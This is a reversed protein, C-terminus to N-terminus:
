LKDTINVMHKHGARKYKPDMTFLGNMWHQNNGVTTIPATSTWGVFSTNNGLIVKDGSEIAKVLSEVADRFGDNYKYSMLKELRKNTMIKM